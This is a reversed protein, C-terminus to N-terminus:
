ILIQQYCIAENLEDWVHYKQIVKGVPKDANVLSLKFVIGM